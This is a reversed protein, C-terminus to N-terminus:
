DDFAKFYIVKMSRARVRTQPVGESQVIRLSASHFGKGLATEGPLPLWQHGSWYRGKYRDRLFSFYTKDTGSNAPISAVVQQQFMTQRVRRVNCFEDEEGDPGLRNGNLFLRVHSEKDEDPSDNTWCIQWTLLVFAKYPLYFQISAGPIPVYHARATAQPSNGVGGFFGDTAPFSTGSSKPSFYDLTTTGAIMNTGSCAGQQILTFGVERGGVDFNDKDLFGNIVCMSQKPVGTLPDLSYFSDYVEEGSPVTADVFPTYTVKPM